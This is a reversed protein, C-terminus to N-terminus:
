AQTPKGTSKNTNYRYFKGTLSGLTYEKLKSDATVLANMGEMTDVTLDGCGVYKSDKRYLKCFVVTTNANSEVHSVLTSKVQNYDSTDTLGSMTFFIRYFSFKVRVSSETQLKTLASTANEVTDFTLFVSNTTKTDARNVLGVLGDFLQNSLTANASSSKVLLTRGGRTQTEASNSEQNTNKPM